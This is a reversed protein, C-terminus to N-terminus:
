ALPVSKDDGLTAAAFASALEIDESEIEPSDVRPDDWSPNDALIELVRPTSLRMGLICPKGGLTGPQTTVRDFGLFTM